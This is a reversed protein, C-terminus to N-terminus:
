ESIIIIKEKEEKTLKKAFAATDESTLLQFSL